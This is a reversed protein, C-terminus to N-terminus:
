FGRALLVGVLLGRISLRQALHLGRPPAQELHGHVRVDMDFDRALPLLAQRDVVDAARPWLHVQRAAPVDHVIGTCHGGQLAAIGATEPAVHAHIRSGNRDIFTDPAVHTSIYRSWEHGSAAWSNGAMTVMVIFYGVRLQVDIPPCKRYTCTAAMVEASSTESADGCRADLEEAGECRQQDKGGGGGGGKNDNQILSKNLPHNRPRRM